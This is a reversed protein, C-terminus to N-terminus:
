RSHHFEVSVRHVLIGVDKKKFDCKMRFSEKQWSLTKSINQVSNENKTESENSVELHEKCATAYIHMLRALWVM